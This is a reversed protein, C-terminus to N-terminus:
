VGIQRQNLNVWMAVICLIPLTPMKTNNRISIFQFCNFASYTEIDFQCKNHYKSNFNFHNVKRDVEHEFKLLEFIDTNGVKQIVPRSRKIQVPNIRLEM